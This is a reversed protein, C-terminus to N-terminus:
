FAPREDIEPYQRVITPEIIDRALPLSLAVNLIHAVERTGGGGYGTSIRSVLWGIAAHRWVGVTVTGKWLLLRQCQM